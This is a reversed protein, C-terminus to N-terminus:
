FDVDLCSECVSIDTYLPHPSLFDLEGCSDCIQPSDFSGFVTSDEYADYTFDDYTYSSIDKIFKSSGLTRYTNRTETFNIYEKPTHENYYGVSLNVCPLDLLSALMSADTFSGYATKYGHQRCVEILKPSDYDYLACDNGGRRDLGILCSFKEGLKEGLEGWEKSGLGGVEEDMFFGYAYDRGLVGCKMNYILNLMIWVGCRDDGGLCRATSKNHLKIISDKIYIDSRSLVRETGATNITDLHCCLLPVPKSNSPYVVVAKDSMVINYDPILKVLTKITNMLGSQSECLLNIIDNVIRMTVGM